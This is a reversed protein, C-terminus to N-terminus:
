QHPHSDVLRSKSVVLEVMQHQKSSASLALVTALTPRPPFRFLFLEFAKMGSSVGWLAEGLRLTRTPLTTCLGNSSHKKPPTPNYIVYARGGVHTPMKTKPHPQDHICNRM